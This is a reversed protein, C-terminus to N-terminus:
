VHARGIEHQKLEAVRKKGAQKLKVGSKEQRLKKERYVRVLAATADGGSQPQAIIQIGQYYFTVPLNQAIALEMIEDCVNEIPFGVYCTARIGTPVAVWKCVITGLMRAAAM